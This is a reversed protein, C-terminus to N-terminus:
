VNEVGLETVKIYTKKSPDLYTSKLISVEYDVLRKEFKIRVNPISQWCKGSGLLQQYEDEHFSKKYFTEVNVVLIVFNYVNCLVRMINVAYSLHLFRQNNDSYLYLLTPLSDIIIIRANYSKTNEKISYLINILEQLTNVRSILSREM